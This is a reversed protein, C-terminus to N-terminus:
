TLMSSHIDFVDNRWEEKGKGAVHAGDEIREGARAGEDVWTKVLSGPAYIGKFVGKGPQDIGVRSYLDPDEEPVLRAGVAKFFTALDKPDAIRTARLRERAFVLERNTARCADAIGHAIQRELVKRMIPRILPRFLWACFSFKSSVLKYTLKHIHV